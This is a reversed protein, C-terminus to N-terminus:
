RPVPVSEDHLNIQQSLHAKSNYMELSYNGYNDAIKAITCQGPYKWGGFLTSHISAIPSGHSVLLINGSSFKRLLAKITVSIRNTCGLDGPGEPPLTTYVPQYTDDIRSMMEGPPSKCSSLNESLGPEIYVPATGPHVSLIERATEVCRTFPSTIVYDINENCLRLAVERAQQLGRLTLPPDDWIDPNNAKWKKDVNDVREGHRVVWITRKSASM